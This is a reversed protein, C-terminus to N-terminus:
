KPRKKRADLAEQMAAQAAAKAKREAGSTNGSAIPEVSGAPYVGWGWEAGRGAGSRLWTKVALEPEHTMTPDVPGIHYVDIFSAQSLVSSRDMIGCPRFPRVAGQARKAIKAM